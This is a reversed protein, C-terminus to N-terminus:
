TESFTLSSNSSYLKLLKLSNTFRMFAAILSLLSNKKKKKKSRRGRRRGVFAAFLVPDNDFLPDNDSTSTYLGLPFAEVLVAEDPASTNM